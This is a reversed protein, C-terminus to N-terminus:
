TGQASTCRTHILKIQAQTLHSQMILLFNFTKTYRTLDDRFNKKTFNEVAGLFNDITILFEYNSLACRQNNSDLSKIKRCKHEPKERV